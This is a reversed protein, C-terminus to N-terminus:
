ITSWWFIYCVLALAVVVIFWAVWFAEDWSAHPSASLLREAEAPFNHNGAVRVVPAIGTDAAQFAAFEDASLTDDYDASM